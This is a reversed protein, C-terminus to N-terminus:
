GDLAEAMMMGYVSTWMSLIKNRHVGYFRQLHPLLFMMWDQWVGPRLGYSQVIEVPPIRNVLGQLAEVAFLLNDEYDLKDDPQKGDNGPYRGHPPVVIPFAFNDIVLAKSPM